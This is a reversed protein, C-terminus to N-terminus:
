PRRPPSANAGKYEGRPLGNRRPERGITWADRGMLHGIERRSGGAAHLRPTEFVIMLISGTMRRGMAAGAKVPTARPRHQVHNTFEAAQIKLATSNEAYMPLFDGGQFPNALWSRDVRCLLHDGVLGEIGIGERGV